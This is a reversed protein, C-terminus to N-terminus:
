IKPWNITKTEIRWSDINFLPAFPGCHKDARRRIECNLYNIKSRQPKVIDSYEWIFNNEGDRRYVGDGDVVRRRVEVKTVDVTPRFKAYVRDSKPDMVKKIKFTIRYFGSNIVITEKSCLQTLYTSFQKNLSLM